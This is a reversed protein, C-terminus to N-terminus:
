TIMAAPISGADHRAVPHSVARGTEGLEDNRLLVGAERAADVNKYESEGFDIFIIFSNSCHPL